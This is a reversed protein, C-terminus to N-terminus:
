QVDRIGTQRATRTEKITKIGQITEKKVRILQGEEDYEYYSAYNNEDLEASLRLTRNDYVYAKMNANFPHIRIDDFYVPQSGDNSLMLTASTANQPVTFEAEIKQWGEIIPGKPQMTVTATGSGPFQLEVHNNLYTPKSCVVSDCTERVWASFQMKKGPTVTFSPNIMSDTAAIPKTSVCGNDASPPLYNLSNCNTCGWSYNNGLNVISPGSSYSESGTATIKYVGPCLAKRYYPEPLNVGGTLISGKSLITDGVINGNEDTITLFLSNSYFTPVSDPQAQYNTSIALTFIYTNQTLIKLYTTGTISYSHNRGPEPYASLTGASSSSFNSTYPGTTTSNYTGSFPQWNTIGGQASVSKTTDRFFNFKYSETGTVTLNLQKNLQNGANVQLMYNGSHPLVSSNGTVISTGAQGALDIYNRVCTYSKSKNLSESYNYDEFSEAFSEGYRANQSMAVPINKNFGFQAATYRDLADRTELEQGKANVKTLESNWVWNTNGEDPVLNNNSNFNWFASFNAIYGNKRISTSQTPDTEVRSGYYTYSRYPKLNGVLGKLYPNIKKELIGLCGISDLEGTTCQPTYYVRKVIIDNDTQWKEKFAVSSAAVLKSSSNLVLKRSGGSTVIPNAMGTVSAVTIGMNNRKGSRIIRFDVGTKTFLRGISDIFVIDKAPVTLATTNKNKDFAWLRYVNASPAPCSINNGPTNTLFLEDGSEFVSLDPVGSVIKGDTFSVNQYSLNINQYAPEISSYAWHGPYSVNYIPDNFENATQTVLPTGSEADYAITKTSIVSGKDMVIVSDEIAHYNILKTCTVARYKNEIYSRTPYATPIPLTIFALFFIDVQAMLNKAKSEISFERVDTMLEMDVGMNGLHIAGGEKNFVYDVQDNLGNKGTNKYSHYSYSIPTKEDSESYATQSKMKGHMDNTEVLFGQSVIRRNIIEKNFFSFFPDKKYDMSEMPTYTSFSPYDRATYFETVQKGIASRVTSDGHTGNRHISRITVKSYGVSPSPYFGELMPMEIAGYQASALPLKNSFNLIERFPNEESGIGPEYSAVGSSITQVTGDIKETTTYDYDQGYTSVYQQTMKNWNDRVLVRKVRNGGGYKIKQPNCLRIFSSALDITRGGDRSRVQNEANTFAKSIQSLMSGMLDLFESLTKVASADYGPFAQGTLNEILFNVASKALPSKGDLPALKIYIIDKNSSNSCLGYDTYGTAYVTLPEFGKPMKVKLKFALQKLSELYKSYIEAKRKSPDTQQLPQPIKVYVYLNDDTLGRNYLGNNTTYMASNGLGYIPFMNSARRDQVYAYDDAEYQIEMQGGSPLLISKLNWAGAFMDNQQKSSGTYPYDINNLSAPNVAVANSDMVPKFTGWRDSASYQYSPNHKNSSKNGYNFVYREKNTRTQGNYAFVISDLTLKGGTANDPTGNCLSYSQYFLVSKLAKAGQIGNAKIDAKTYLDIRNLKKNAHENTNPTGDHEGVVGKGDNRDATSFVAIMSKSEITNLYWSERKGFTISAKNDRGESRKGENFHAIASTSLSRPTRWQHDSASKTYNFKVAGGLDDETIGDGTVDVYDPSLLGTILFSSAYAPTEQGQLFGDYKSDNGMHSSNLAPDVAANYAVMNTAGTPLNAVTFTFDKQSINYVPVGYVYRMGNQELVDIESIHNKKRYDGVRPISDYVIHHDTQDFLNNGTQYTRIWKELGVKGADEANLMTIVQTRKERPLTTTNSVPRFGNVAGTKKSFLELRSEMRPVADSGGLKFRVLSDRGIRNIAEASTVTAEGPNKFYINEFSSGPQKAKWTMSQRLTNNNDEWGGVRTPAAVTNVNIGYHGPIAIDAGISINDDKSLTENDRMFGLDGRYARISGNTGEGQISFIDYAYMPASVVPTNPTVEADNVRNFDMVANPNSNAKESYMYGVLPKSVQKWEDPVKSVSYFGNLTASGRFGFAGGGFEVQGSTYSNQMPMRVIPTYTPKAFSINSSLRTSMINSRTERYDAGREQNDQLYYLSAESHLNLAAIGTRSNYSTSLGIGTTVNVSTLSSNASLSPTFTLGSRSSLKAGLSLGVTPIASKEAKINEQMPISVSVTAGMEIAPGLYNNYSYGASLGLKPEKIGMLEGDVGVEGGWTRNPKLDQTQKLMDTGDFDDPIGRMNRSVSGPNINWGLGVWSAEQEMGIGGNYFLNVPYGGVDMLPISYSFDGTFLNVLNSSGVTKFSTAEPASPGGIVPQILKQYTAPKAAILPATVKHNLASGENNYKHLNIAPNSDAFTGAWNHASRRDAASARLPYVLQVLFIYLLLGAVPKTYKDAIVQIM